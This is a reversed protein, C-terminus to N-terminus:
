FPNRTNRANSVSIKFASYDNSGLAPKISLRFASDAGALVTLYTPRNAADVLQGRSNFFRCEFEPEKWAIQSQNTLIGTVFLLPGDSTEAWNMNSQLIQISGRFDSYYPPRNMFNGTSYILLGILALAPPTITAFYVMPNRFSRFTLWQRCRPCIRAAAPISEACYRCTKDADQKESNM